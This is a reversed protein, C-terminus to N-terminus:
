SVIIRTGVPVRAHLDVIDQNMLRVCGSSVSQGISWWEPSGHLRYLTDVGNQYIYLARAGLPNDLGGAKGGDWTNTRPNFTTRYKELEPQREIMEEPPHWRPWEAKREVNGEGSWEFGERGLGVGYRVARGLPLTWYLFHDQVDVVLTGAPQGTTNAVLQRRYRQDVKEWPIPPLDFEPDDQPGYMLAWNDDPLSPTGGFNFRAEEVPEVPEVGPADTTPARRTQCGALLAASGVLLGSTFSRRSLPARTM